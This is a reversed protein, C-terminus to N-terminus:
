EGELFPSIFDAWKPWRADKESVLPMTEVPWPINLTPDNWLLGGEADPAYVADVKYSVISEGSLTLYAHACGRPIYVMNQAEGSLEVMAYRGYTPSSRRIDVFVDLVRGVVARVLKTEAHPPAQFHFGRLIGARHNGSQNEQLWETQLGHEAFLERDYTRMFYGRADRIPSPLIEFAGEIELPKIEM